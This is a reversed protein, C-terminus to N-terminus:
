RWAPLGSSSGDMDHKGIDTALQVEFDLSKLADAIANADSKPNALALSADKYTSNGVVLAVCKEPAAYAHSTALAFVGV